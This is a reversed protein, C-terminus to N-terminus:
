TGVRQHCRQSGADTFSRGPEAVFRWTYRDPYLTLELVGFTNTNLVESNAALAVLSTHNAGGTGAVFERIGNAPDAAGTPSQPAFREYIHDHATLVVDAKAAYLADWFSRSNNNAKGGSSFLPIHWYALVCRNPHAALDSRLWRGQAATAGCGGAARCQSNLAILHWAGIDYSYYGKKPDGAAAGFYEFYGAAGTNAADCGTGGSTLYEHNGVSPHSISKLRGWSLDYSAQFAAYGGCSYQNDGLPLVAAISPNNVIVNSTYKDRCRSAVGNGANFGSAGPDCAIDGATAIVPAAAGAPGAM